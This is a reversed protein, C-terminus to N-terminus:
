GQRIGCVGSLIHMDQGSFGEVYYTEGQNLNIIDTSNTQHNFVTLVTGDFAAVVAFGSGNGSIAGNYSLIRYDIGLAIVPLALYADSTATLLNLGYLSVPDYSIVRIGKNEVGGELVVGSPLTLQTVVGPTVSFSQGVGPYASYILGSTSYNSSIFLQITAGDQYNPPFAIWFDTGVNTVGQSFGLVSLLLFLGSIVLQKM